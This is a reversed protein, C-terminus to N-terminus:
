FRRALYPILYPTNIVFGGCCLFSWSSPISMILWSIVIPLVHFGYLLVGIV